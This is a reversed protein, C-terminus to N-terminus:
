NNRKFQIFPLLNIFFFGFVCYLTIGFFDNSVMNGGRSGLIIIYSMLTFFVSFLINKKFFKTSKFKEKYFLIISILFWIIVIFIYVGLFMFTVIISMDSAKSMNPFLLLFLIILITFKIKLM